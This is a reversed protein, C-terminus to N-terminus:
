FAIEQLCQLIFEVQIPDQIHNMAKLSQLRFNNYNHVFQKDVEEKTRTENM